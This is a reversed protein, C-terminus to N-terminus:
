EGDQRDSIVLSLGSRRHLPRRLTAALLGALALARRFARKTRARRVRWKLVAQSEESELSAHSLLQAIVRGTECPDAVAMLRWLDGLDSTVFPARAHSAFGRAWADCGTPM